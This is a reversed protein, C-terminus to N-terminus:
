PALYVLLSCLSIAAATIGANIMLNFMFDADAPEEVSAAAFSRGATRSSANRM